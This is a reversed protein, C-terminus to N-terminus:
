QTHSRVPLLLTVVPLAHRVVRQTTRFNTADSHVWRCPGRRSLKRLVHLNTHTYRPPQRQQLLLLDTPTTLYKYNFNYVSAHYTSTCPLARCLTRSLVHSFLFLFFGYNVKDQKPTIGLGACPVSPTHNTPSSTHTSPHIIQPFPTYKSLLPPHSQRPGELCLEHDRATTRLPHLWNLPLMSTVPLRATLAEYSSIRGQATTYSTKQTGLSTASGLGFPKASTSQEARIAQM